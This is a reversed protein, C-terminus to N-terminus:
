AEGLRRTHERNQVCTERGRWILSGIMGVRTGCGLCGLTMLKSEEDGNGKGLMKDFQKIAM